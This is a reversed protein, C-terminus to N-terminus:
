YDWGVYIYEIDEPPIDKYGNAKLFATIGKTTTLLLGGSYDPGLKVWIPIDGDDTKTYNDTNKPETDNWRDDINWELSSNIAKFFKNTLKKMSRSLYGGYEDVLYEGNKHKIYLYENYVM